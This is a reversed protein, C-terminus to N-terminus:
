LAADKAVQVINSTVIVVLLAHKIVSMLHLLLLPLQLPWAKGAQVQRICSGLVLDVSVAAPILVLLLLLKIALVLRPRQSRCAAALLVLPVAAVSCLPGSHLQPALCSVGPSDAAAGSLM